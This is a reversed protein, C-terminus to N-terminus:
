HTPVVALDGRPHGVRRSIDKISRESPPQEVGFWDSLILLEDAIFVDVSPADPRYDTM